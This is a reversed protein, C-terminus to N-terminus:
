QVGGSDDLMGFHQVAEAMARITGKVWGVFNEAEMEAVIEGVTREGNLDRMRQVIAAAHSDAGTDSVHRINEDNSM